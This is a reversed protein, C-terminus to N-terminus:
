TAGTGVNVVRVGGLFVSQCESACESCRMVCEQGGSGVPM